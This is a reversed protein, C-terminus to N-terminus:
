TDRDEEERREKGVAAIRAGAYGWIWGVEEGTWGASRGEGGCGKGEKAGDM